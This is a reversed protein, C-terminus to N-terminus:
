SPSHALLGLGCHRGAGIALPGPIPHDFHLRLHVATQHQLHDPRFYGIRNKHRDYKHATLTNRFNPLASWTFTCPQEIGSHLLATRILNETKAPKHDDHGPLIVPTVSRWVKSTGLYNEAIFKGPPPTFKQLEIRRPINPSSDSRCLTAINEPQLIQGNLQDALHELQSEMGLPATIMVNRIMADSHTHGISPLPIYSFQKHDDVGSPRHGAVASEIWAAPATGIPLIPPNRKMSEIALHRVMGAIHILKAHPYCYADDNEDILKFVAHPRPVGATYSWLQYIPGGSELVTSENSEFRGLYQRYCERLSDLSGIRPVRIDIGSADPEDRPCFYLRSESKEPLCELIVGNGIALDIGWGFARIRRVAKLLTEPHDQVRIDTSDYRWAFEILHEGNLLTPRILKQTRSRGEANNLVFTLLVQGAQSQPVIIHPPPLTELWQLAEAVDSPISEGRANGAVIAQFLRFCSPPWDQKEGNAKLGHFRDDLLRVSLLLIV